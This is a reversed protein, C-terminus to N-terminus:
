GRMGDMDEVNISARNRFLLILIALGIASEAAAVTLIFFVFIQGSLDGLYHSFAIFNFNVALLMLEICMLLVIVNKRNIFIGAVSISFLIASLLLYHSLGISM